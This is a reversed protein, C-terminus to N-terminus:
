KITLNIRLVRQAGEGADAPHSKKGSRSGAIRSRARRKGSHKGSVAKGDGGESQGQHRFGTQSQKIATGQPIRRRSQLNGELIGLLLWLRQSCLPVQM